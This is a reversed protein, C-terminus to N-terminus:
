ARMDFNVWLVFVRPTGSGSVRNYGIRYSQDLETKLVGDWIQSLSRGAEGNLYTPTASAITVAQGLYTTQSTKLAMKIDATSSPILWGGAIESQYMRLDSSPETAWTFAFLDQADADASSNYNTSDVTGPFDDILAANDTGTSPTWEIETEISPYALFIGGRTPREDLRLVVDDYYVDFTRSGSVTDGLYFALPQGSLSVPTGALAEILTTSDAEYVSVTFTEDGGAALATATFEVRYWTGYTMANTVYDITGSGIQAGVKYSATNLQAIVGFHGVGGDRMMVLAHEENPNGASVNNVMFYVRGYLIDPWAIPTRSINQPSGNNTLKASRLGTVSGSRVTTSYTVTVGLGGSVSWMEFASNDEFGDLMYMGTTPTSTPILAGLDIDSQGCRGTWTGTPDSAPTWTM